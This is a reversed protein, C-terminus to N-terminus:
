NASKGPRLIVGLKPHHQVFKQMGHSQFFIYGFVAMFFLCIAMIVVALVGSHSAPGMHIPRSQPKYTQM